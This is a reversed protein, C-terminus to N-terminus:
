ARRTVSVTSPALAARIQNGEDPVVRIPCEKRRYFPPARAGRHGRLRQSIALDPFRVCIQLLSQEIGRAGLSSRRHGRLDFDFRCANKLRALAWIFPEGEGPVIGSVTMAM